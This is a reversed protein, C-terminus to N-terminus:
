PTTKITEQADEDPSFAEHWDSSRRGIVRGELTRHQALEVGLASPDGGQAVHWAANEVERIGEDVSICLRYMVSRQAFRFCLYDVFLVVGLVGSVFSSWDVYRDFSVFYHYMWSLGFVTRYLGMCVVYLLVLVSSNAPDKYCYIYQPIMAVSELYTSFIWSMEILLGNDDSSYHGFVSALIISPIILVALPLSDKRDAAGGRAAMLLVINVTLTWLLTKYIILGMSQDCFLINLFRMTFVICFLVHTKLSVGYTGDERFNSALCLLLATVHLFDGMYQCVVFHYHRVSLHRLNCVPEFYGLKVNVRADHPLLRHVDDM